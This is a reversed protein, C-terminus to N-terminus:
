GFALPQGYLPLPSVPVELPSIPSIPSHPKSLSPFMTMTSSPSDKRRTGGGVSATRRHYMSPLARLNPSSLGSPILGSSSSSFPSLDGTSAAFFAKGSSGNMGSSSINALDLNEDSATACEIFTPTGMDVDDLQPVFNLLPSTPLPSPLFTSGVLIEASSISEAAASGGAARADQFNFCPSLSLPAALKHTAQQIGGNNNSDGNVQALPLSKPRKPTARPLPSPSAAMQSLSSPSLNLNSPRQRQRSSSTSTGFTSSLTLDLSSSSSSSSFSYPPFSSSVRHGAVSSILSSRNSGGSHSHSQSTVLSPSPYPSNIALSAMRLSKQSPLTPSATHHRLSSTNGSMTNLVNSTTPLTSLQPTSLLPSLLISTPLQVSLLTSSSSPTLGSTSDSTPSPTLLPPSSSSLPMPQSSAQPPPSHPFSFSFVPAPTSWPAPSKPCSEKEYQQQQQQLSQMTRPITSLPSPSPSSSPPPVLASQSHCSLAGLSSASLSLSGKPIDKHKCQQQLYTQFKQLQQIFNINPDIVSRRSMVLDFAQDFSLELKYMIYAICVTASRSIGAWCHVLVKGSSAAVDDTLLSLLYSTM